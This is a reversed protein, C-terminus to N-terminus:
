VRKLYDIFKKTQYQWSFKRISDTDAKWLQSLNKKTKWLNLISLLKKKIESEEDKVVIGVKLKKVLEGAFDNERSTICFIPKKLGLYEFLKGPVQYKTQNSFYVLVHMYKAYRIVEPHPLVGLYEIKKEKILEMPLFQEHRGAYFFKINEMNKIVRFFRKPDRFSYFSGAYFLKLYKDDKIEVSNKEYLLSEDFGQTFVFLKVPNIGYHKIYFDKLLPNTVLILESINLMKKEIEKLVNKWISPYYDATLPDAMDIILKIRPHMKKLFWGILLDVMPEHACIIYDYTYINGRLFFYYYVLFNVFWENRVDGLLFYGAFKRLLKYSKKLFSLYFQKTIKKRYKSELGLKSKYRLLIYEFPGPYLRNVNLGKYRDFTEDPLKITLVDVNWGLEILSKSIYFWRISQAEWLPPYLYSIILFKM